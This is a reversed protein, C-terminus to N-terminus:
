QWPIKWDNRAAVEPFPKALAELFAKDNGHLDKIRIGVIEVATLSTDPDGLDRRAALSFEAYLRFLVHPPAGHYTSQMFNRWALVADDSGFVSIWTSFSTTEERFKDTTIADRTAPDLMSALMELMPKYVDYKKGAVREELLQIRANERQITGARKTARGALVAAVIAAVAPALGIILPLWSTVHAPETLM